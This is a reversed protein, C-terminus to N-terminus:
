EVLDAIVVLRKAYQNAAEDWAGECTVLVLHAQGDHMVFVDSANEQRDYLRLESVVFSRIAGLEDEVYVYDGTRMTYLEDFVSPKGGQHGAIVASGQEGPRPGSEFWAVNDHNSPVDMTGDPALGVYEITADINIKPIKLRLPLGPTALTQEIVIPVSYAESRVLTVPFRQFAYVGLLVIVLSLEAVFVSSKVQKM